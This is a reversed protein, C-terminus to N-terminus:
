RGESRDWLELQNLVASVDEVRLVFNDLSAARKMAKMREMKPADKWVSDDSGPHQLFVAVYGRSAWHDGLFKSGARSGGLGHSFLVLPAAEKQAPLYIRIPIERGQEADKVMMDQPEGLPSSKDVALPNYAFALSTLFLIASLTTLNTVNM